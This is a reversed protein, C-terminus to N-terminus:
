VTTAVKLKTGVAVIVTFLDPDPFPMTTLLGAPM